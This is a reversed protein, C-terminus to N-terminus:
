LLFANFNRHSTPSRPLESRKILRFREVSQTVLFSGNSSRTAYYPFGPFFIHHDITLMNVSVKELNGFACKPLIPDQWMSDSTNNWAKSQDTEEVPHLTVKRKPSNNIEAMQETWGRTLDLEKRAAKRHYQTHDVTPPPDLDHQIWKRVGTALFICRDFLDKPFPFGM